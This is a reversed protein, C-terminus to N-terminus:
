DNPDIVVNSHHDGRIYGESAPICSLPYATNPTNTKCVKVMVAALAEDRCEHCLRDLWTVRSCTPCKHPM